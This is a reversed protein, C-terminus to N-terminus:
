IILFAGLFVNFVQFTSIIKFNFICKKAIVQNKIQSTIKQQQKKLCKNECFDVDLQLPIM